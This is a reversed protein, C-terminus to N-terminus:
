NKLHIQFSSGEHFCQAQRSDTGPQGAAFALRMSENRVDQRVVLDHWADRIPVGRCAPLAVGATSDDNAHHFPAGFFYFAVGIMREVLPFEAGCPLGRQLAEIIRIPQAFGESSRAPRILAWVHREDHSSATEMSTSRSRVASSGTMM